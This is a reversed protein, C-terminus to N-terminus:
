NSTRKLAAKLGTLMRGVHGCLERLSNLQEASAYNLRESIVFLTELEQLSGRAVSLHYVSERLSNRGQGEAINSPISVAARRLQATLGFREHSPFSDTCDYCKVALDVARQWVMMDQYRRITMSQGPRDFGLRIAEIGPHGVLDERAIMM